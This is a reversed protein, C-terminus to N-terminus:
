KIPNNITIFQVFDQYDIKSDGNTDIRRIIAILEEETAYYKNWMLFDKLSLHDLYGQNLIDVLNFLELPSYFSNMDELILNKLRTLDVERKFLSALLIEWDQPLIRDYPQIDGISYKTRKIVNRLEKDNSPLLILLFDDFILNGESDSDFYDILWQWEDIKVDEHYNKHLFDYLDHADISQKHNDM